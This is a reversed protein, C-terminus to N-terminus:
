SIEVKIVCQSVMFFDTNWEKEPIVFILDPTYFCKSTLTRFTRRVIAFFSNLCTYSNFLFRVLGIYWEVKGERKKMYESDCGRTLTRLCTSHSHARTLVLQERRSEGEKQTIAM